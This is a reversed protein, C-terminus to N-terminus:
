QPSSIWGPYKTTSPPTPHPPAAGLPQILLLFPSVQQANPREATKNETSKNKISGLGGLCLCLEVKLAAPCEQADTDEVTTRWSLTLTGEGQEPQEEEANRPQQEAGTGQKRWVRHGNTAVSIEGTM